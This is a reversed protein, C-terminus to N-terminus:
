YVTSFETDRVNIQDILDACDTFFKHLSFSTKLLQMRTGILEILEQWEENM